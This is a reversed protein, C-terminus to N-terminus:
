EPNRNPTRSRSLKGMSETIDAAKLLSLTMEVDVNNSQRRLGPQTVNCVVRGRLESM